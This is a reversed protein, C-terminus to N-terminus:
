RASEIISLIDKVAPEKVESSFKALFGIGRKSDKIAAIIIGQPFEQGFVVIAGDYQKVSASGCGTTKVEWASHTEKMLPMSSTVQSSWMEMIDNRKKAFKNKAAGIVMIVGYEEHQLKAIVMNVDSKKTQWGAPLTLSILKHDFTTPTAPPKPETIANTVTVVDSVGTKARNHIRLSEFTTRLSKGYKKFLEPPMFAYYCIGLEDKESSVGGLFIHTKITTGAAKLASEYEAFRAPLGNLTMDVVTDPPPETLGGIRAINVITSFLEQRDIVGPYCTVVCFANGNKPGFRYSMNMQEKKLEWNAPLDLKFRGLSDQFPEAGALYSMSISMAALGCALWIGLRAGHQPIYISTM